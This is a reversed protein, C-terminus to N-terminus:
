EWWRQCVSCGRIFDRVLRGDHPTFFTAHLRHLTKQVGEHGMGHAQLLLPAWSASTDPLFIRGKYLVIDNVVTWDPGATGAAIQTRKNILASLSTSEQRLQDYLEFAPLPLACVSSM